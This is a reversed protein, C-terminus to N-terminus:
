TEHTDHLPGGGNVTRFVPTLPRGHCPENLSRGVGTIMRDVHIM